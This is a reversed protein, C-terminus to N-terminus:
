KTAIVDAAGFTATVGDGTDCDRQAIMTLTHPEDTGPQFRPSAGGPFTGVNIRKTVEGVGEDEVAGFAVADTEVPNLPDPSDLLLVATVSRPQTCGAAFRVDLAGVFSNVEGAGQTYTNDDLPYVIFDDALAQSSSGSAMQTIRSFPTSSAEIKNGTVAEKEIKGSTVAKKDIKKTEVAKNKLKKGAISQNKIKNGNIKSAAYGTGALAVSLAILSIILSPSPRRVRAKM